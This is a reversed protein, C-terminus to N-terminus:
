IPLVNKIKFLFHFFVQTRESSPSLLNISWGFDKSSYFSYDITREVSDHRIRILDHNYCDNAFEDRHTNDDFIDTVM